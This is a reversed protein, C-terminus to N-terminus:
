MLVNTCQFMSFDGDGLPAVEVLAAVASAEESVVAEAALAVEQLGQDIAAGAWIASYLLTGFTWARETAEKVAM